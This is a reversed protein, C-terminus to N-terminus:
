IWVLDHALEFSRPPRGPRELPDQAEVEPAIRFTRPQLVLRLGLVGQDKESSGRVKRPPSAAVSRERGHVAIGRGIRAMDLMIVRHKSSWPPASAGKKTLCEISRLTGM